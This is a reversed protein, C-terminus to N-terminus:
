GCIGRWSGVLKELEELSADAKLDNARWSMVLINDKDYGRDQDLRDLSPSNGTRNGSPDQNISIGLLPCVLPILIDAPRISFSLGKHKARWKAAAWLSYQLKSCESRVNRGAKKNAESRFENRACGCSRTAGSRLVEGRITRLEGCDCSCLWWVGYSQGHTGAPWQATYRGFKRGTMDIFRRSM